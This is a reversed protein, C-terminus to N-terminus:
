IIMFFKVFHLIKFFKVSLFLLFNALCLKSFNYGQDKAEVMETRPRSLTQELFTPGQCRIKKTNRAKIDFTTDEVGGRFRVYRFSLHNITHEFVVFWKEDIDTITSIYRNLNTLKKGM